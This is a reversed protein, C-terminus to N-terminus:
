APPAGKHALCSHWAIATRGALNRMDQLAAVDAKPHRLRHLLGGLDHFTVEAEISALGAKRRAIAMETAPTAAEIAESYRRNAEIGEAIRKTLPTGFDPWVMCVALLAALSGIVNDLMRASAIGLGPHLMETVLVFLLTLFVVFITYSVLRVAITAAALAIALVLLPMQASGDQLLFLAIMGGLLSGLIRELCRTWTVRMDGQLVVVVAMAAWYPYGLRFVMAAHYVVILGISQRLAQQWMATAPRGTRTSDRLATRRADVSVCPPESLQVLADELALACGVFLDNTLGARLRQVRGRVWLLPAANPSGAQSVLRWTLLAKRCGQAVALREVALGSRDIYAQDLALLAGFMTEAANLAQRATATAPAAVEYRLLLDRLREIALRVARRHEAHESHWAEDRHSGEGLSVLDEAMDLLRLIVADGARRIPVFPDVRWLFTILLYAWTAGALFAAAQLCAEALPRPFGVAVVAVVALLTGVTGAYVIHATGLVALFVLLPGVVMGLTPMLSTAWSGVLAILAGCAAFIALLRRRLCDPGPADCLCTWFAAFVAWGLEGQGTSVALTLPLAVALAARYGEIRNFQEPILGFSRLELRRGLGRLTRAAHRGLPRPIGIARALKTM